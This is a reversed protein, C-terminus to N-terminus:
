GCISRKARSIPIALETYAWIEGRAGDMGPWEYYHGLPM